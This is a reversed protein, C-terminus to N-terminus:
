VRVTTLPQIVGPAQLVGRVPGRVAPATLTRPPATWIPRLVQALIIVAGLAVFLAAGTVLIRATSGPPALAISRQMGSCRHLRRALRRVPAASANRLRHCPRQEQLGLDSSCVDSSWDRTSRTHRRRS